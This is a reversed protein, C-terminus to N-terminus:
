LESGIYVSSGGATNSVNYYPISKVTVDDELYTEATPLTQETVKPIVTYEGEYIAGSTTKKDNKWKATFIVYYENNAVSIPILWDTSLIMRESLSSQHGAPNVHVWGLFNYRNASLEPLHDSKLPENAIINSDSPVDGYETKYRITVTAKNIDPM